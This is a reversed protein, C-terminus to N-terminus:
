KNNLVEKIDKFSVTEMYETKGNITVDFGKVGNFKVEINKMTKV